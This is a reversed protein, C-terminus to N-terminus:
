RNDNDNEEKRVSEETLFLYEPIDGIEQREDGNDDLYNIIMQGDKIFVARLSHKGEFIYEKGDKDKILANM